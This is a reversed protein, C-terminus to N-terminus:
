CGCETKTVGDVHSPVLGVQQTAMNRHDREFVQPQDLVAEALTELDDAVSQMMDANQVALIEKRSSAPRDHPLSGHITSILRSIVGRTELLLREAQNSNQRTMLLLARAIMDSALIEMRRRKVMPDFALIRSNAPQPTPASVIPITLLLPQTLRSVSRGSAPDHYSCDVEVVPIDEALRGDALMDKVVSSPDELSVRDMSFSGSLGTNPRSRPASTGDGEYDFEVLIERTEGYRLDRLEIDITKAGQAPIPTQVGMIRAIKFDKDACSLSIRARIMAISTLGGVIGALTDRLHYWERVFTYTGNSQNCLLWLPRPDHAKGYGITHIPISVSDLRAFILELQGARVVEATDSVVMLGALPNKATRQLLVDLSVNMATVLDAREDPAFEVETDDEQAGGTGLNEVFAELRRRSDPRTPCLLPTKRVNVGQECSVLSIRDGPGLTALIFGLAQRMLRIKLPASEPASAAQPIALVIVLDVPTHIPGLPQLPTSYSPAVDNDHSYTSMSPSMVDVGGLGLGSMGSNITSSPSIGPNAKRLAVPAGTGMLKAVKSASNGGKESMGRDRVEKVIKDLMNRWLDYQMRDKFVLIFTQHNEDIMLITLSLENATSSDIVKRVHKFHIRGRLKLTTKPPASALSRSSKSARLTGGSKFMKSLASPTEESICALADSFLYMLFPRKTDGKRVDLLDYLRLPGCGDLSSKGFDQLRRELDAQVAELPLTGGIAAQHTMMGDMSSTSIPSPPLAPSLSVESKSRNPRPYREREGASPLQVTIMAAMQRKQRNMTAMEPRVSIHPIVIRPTSDIGGRKPSNSSMPVVPDNAQLNSSVSPSSSNVSTSSGGRLGSGQGTM